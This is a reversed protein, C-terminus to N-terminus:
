PASRGRAGPAGQRCQGASRRCDARVANTRPPRRPGPGRRPGAGEGHVVRVPDAPARTSGSSSPGSSRPRATPGRGSRASSPSRSSRTRLPAAAGGSRQHAPAPRQCARAGAPAPRRRRLRGARGRRRRRRRARGAPDLQGAPARRAPGPRGRVLRRPPDGVRDARRAGRHARHLLPRRGAPRARRPLRRRLALRGAPAVVPHARGVRAPQHAPRPRPLPRPLPRLAHDHTVGGSTTASRAGGDRGRRRRGVGARPRALVGTAAPCVRPRSRARRGRGRRGRGAAAGEAAERGPDGRECGDDVALRDAHGDAREGRDGQVRRQRGDADAPRRAVQARRRPGRGLEPDAHQGRLLARGPPPQGGALRVPERAQGPVLQGALGQEHVAGRRRQAGADVTLHLGAVM